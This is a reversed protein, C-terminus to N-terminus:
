PCGATFAAVFLGIDALDFIGDDNLDSIPNQSTFGGTFAGIDALDLVGEPAALDADNCPGGVPDECILGEIRVADVGAEVVTGVDDSAIFRVRVNATPTVFDAVRFAKQIWGGSVEPGTPGVTELNTWSGGGNNSIEIVFTETFAEAASGGENNDFWRAYSIVAEPNGSLDFNPSTLTTSGGDVDSNDAGNDTIYCFASGDFDTAPDAIRADGGQSPVTRQWAGDSLGPSNTVSWGQDSNFNDSFETTIEGVVATFPAAAGDSPLTITGSQDGTIEFFFEPNDACLAAPINATFDQGGAAVLPISQFSGGDNRFRLVRNSVVEDNPDITVTLTTEVGPELQEPAADALDIRAPIFPLEDLTAFFNYAQINNTSDGRVRVYYTGPDELVFNIVEAEGIGTSDESTLVTTGNAALLDVRLDHIRLSDFPTGNSCSQTQPGDLYTEGTATVQVTLESPETATLEYWDVDSNDDISVQSISFFFPSGIDTASGASDNPENFDGYQRQAHLRDDLQPGDFGTNIFPEMLKTGNSPCVHAMGKGHGHEHSLINRLRISNGGVNNYFSDDSDLVMDGNDPFFNYALVGGGGDIRKAGIRVDGRVGAIGANFNSSQNVGDDNPEYVYDNGSLEEWRDFVQQYLPFWNDFNGYIGNMWAFLDSPGGGFGADNIFTGDPILSWTIITPDGQGLGGGSLATSDWRNNIQFRNDPHFALADFAMVVDEPTGPAFCAAMGGAEGKALKDLATKWEPRMAEYSAESLLHGVRAYAEDAMGARIMGGAIAIRQDTPLANFMAMELRDVACSTDCAHQSVPVWPQAAGALGTLCGAAALVTLVRANIM